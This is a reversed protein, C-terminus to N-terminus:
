DLLVSLIERTRNYPLTFHGEDEFFTASCNLITEALYHGVSVPVNLDLEGRWLHVEAAIEDLRFGWPRAYIAADQNVGGWGSRFAERYADICGNALEPQDLLRRDPESVIEKIQSLVKDPKNRLGVAMLRLLLRRVPSLKGPLIWSAGQKMGPAEPPGMGCVVGAAALRGPIKFACAMAFPGGGSGGLVAFRDLELRDALEVVDDPWDLLARGPKFDSLGSGPRDVAIIRASIDSATDAVDFLPWEIRSGPFGHFYLVPKGEWAGYEAYGLARGDRLKVRQGIM